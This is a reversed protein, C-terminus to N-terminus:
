EKRGAGNWSPTTPMSTPEVTKKCTASAIHLRVSTLEFEAHSQAHLRSVAPGQRARDRIEARPMYWSDSEVTENRKSIELLRDPQMGAFSHRQHAAQSRGARWRSSRRLEPQARRHGAHTDKALTQSDVRLRVYVPRQGVHIPLRHVNLLM